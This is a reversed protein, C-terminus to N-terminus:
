PRRLAVIHGVTTLCNRSLDLARLHNETLDILARTSQFIVGASTPSGAVVADDHLDHDAGVSYRSSRLYLRCTRCCGNAVNEEAADGAAAVAGAGSLGGRRREACGAWGCRGISRRARGPNVNGTMGSLITARSRLSRPPAHILFCQCVVLRRLAQRDGFATCLAKGRAVIPLAPYSWILM